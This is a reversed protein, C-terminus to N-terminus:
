KGKISQHNQICELIESLKWYIIFLMLQRQTTIIMFYVRIINPHVLPSETPISPSWLIVSWSSYLKGILCRVYGLIDPIHAHAHTHTCVCAHEDGPFFWNLRSSISYLGVERNSVQSSCVPFLHRLARGWIPYQNKKIRVGGM